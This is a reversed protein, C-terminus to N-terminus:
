FLSLVGGLVVCAFARYQVDFSITCDHFVTFSYRHFMPTQTHTSVIPGELVVWSSKAPHTSDVSRCFRSCVQLRSGTGPIGDYVWATGVMREGSGRLKAVPHAMPWRRRPSPVRGSGVSNSATRPTGFGRNNTVNFKLKM